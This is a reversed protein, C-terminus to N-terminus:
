FFVQQLYIICIHIPLVIHIIIKLGVQEMLARRHDTDVYPWLGRLLGLLFQNKTSANRVLSLANKVVAVRGVGMMERALKGRSWGMADFLASQVWEVYQIPLTDKHRVLFNRVLEM